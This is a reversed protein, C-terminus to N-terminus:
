APGGAARAELQLLESLLPLVGLNSEPVIRLASARLAADGGSGGTAHMRALM